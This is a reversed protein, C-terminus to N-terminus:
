GIVERSGAITAQGRFGSNPTSFSLLGYSWRDTEQVAAGVVLWTKDALKLPESM